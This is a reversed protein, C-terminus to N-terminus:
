INGCIVRQMKEDFFHLSVGYLGETLKASLERQVLSGPYLRPPARFCGGEQRGKKAFPLHAFTGGGEQRGKKAFPLHHSAGSPILFNSFPVPLTKVVVKKPNM